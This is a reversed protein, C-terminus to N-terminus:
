KHALAHHRSTESGRSLALWFIHLPLPMLQNYQMTSLKLKSIGSNMQSQPRQVNKSICTIEMWAYNTNWYSTVTTCFMKIVMHTTSGRQYMVHQM